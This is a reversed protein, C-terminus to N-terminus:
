MEGCGVLTERKGDQTLYILTAVLGCSSAASSKMRLPSTMTTVFISLSARETASRQLMTALISALPALRRMRAILRSVAVGVPRRMNFTM